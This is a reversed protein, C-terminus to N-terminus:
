GTPKRGGGGGPGGTSDTPPAVPPPPAGGLVHVLHNAVDRVREPAPIQPTAGIRTIRVPGAVELEATAERLADADGAALAEALADVIREVREWRQAALQWELLDNLVDLADAKTEDDFPGSGPLQDVGGGSMNM